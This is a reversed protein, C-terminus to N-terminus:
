RKPKKAAKKRKAREIKIIQASDLKWVDPREEPLKIGEAVTETLSSEVLWTVFALFVFFLLIGLMSFQDDSM